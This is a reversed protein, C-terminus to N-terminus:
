MQLAKIADLVRDACRQYDIRDGSEFDAKTFQMPKGVRVSIPHLHPRGGMPYAEYAGWIRLPVVPCLTKGVVFGIGPQAPQIEGNPTRGGEPFIVAVHGTRVINILHRLATRDANQQDVPIVHLDQFFRGFFPWEMIESKALYVIDQRPSALAVLPPDIFSQHNMALIIGGEMPINESGACNWQCASQVIVRFLNLTFWHAINMGIPVPLDRSAPKYANVASM